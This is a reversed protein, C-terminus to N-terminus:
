SVVDFYTFYQPTTSMAVSRLQFTMHILYAGYVLKGLPIWPSWSLVSKLVTAHGYSASFLLGVTGISWAVRHLGAYAGSEIANYEHYRDYFISGTVVTAFLLLFSGLTLAHSSIRSLNKTTNKLRYYIYGAFMGVIYPVARTHSKTYTLRFDPHSKPARLADPYFQLLAPRLYVVTLAFPIIVSLIFLFVLLSFGIRKHKNLLMAVIIGLIFFHFDCPLYWSHIM